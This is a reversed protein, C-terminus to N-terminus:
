RRRVPPSRAREEGIGPTLKPPSTGWVSLVAKPPSTGPGFASGQISEHGDGFASDQTPEHGPSFMSDQTPEGGGRGCKVIKACVLWTHPNVAKRSGGPSADSTKRGGDGSRLSYWGRTSKAQASVTKAKTNAMGMSPPVPEASARAAAVGMACGVERDLVEVFFVSEAAVM